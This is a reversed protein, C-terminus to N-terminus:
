FNATEYVKTKRLIIRLIIVTKNSKFHLTFNPGSLSKLIKNCNENVVAM